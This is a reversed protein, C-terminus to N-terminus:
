SKGTAAAVTLPQPEHTTPEEVALPAEMSPAATLPISPVSLPRRGAILPTQLRPLATETPNVAPAQVEGVYRDLVPQAAVMPTSEVSPAAMREAEPPETAPPAVEVASAAPESVVPATQQTTESQPVPAVSPPAVVPAEAITVPAPDPGPSFFDSEMVGSFVAFGLAAAAAYAGAWRMPFTIVTAPKSIRQEVADWAAAREVPTESPVTARLEQEADGLLEVLNM